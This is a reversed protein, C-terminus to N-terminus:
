HEGLSYAFGFLRPSNQVVRIYSNGVLAATKEAPLPLPTM